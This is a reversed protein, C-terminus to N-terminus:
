GVKQKKERATEELQIVRGSEKAAPKGLRYGLIASVAVAFAALVLWSQDTYVALISIVMMLYYRLILSSIRLKFM